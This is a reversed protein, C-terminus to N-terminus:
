DLAYEQKWDIGEVMAPQAKKESQWIRMGRTAM